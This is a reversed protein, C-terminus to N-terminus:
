SLEQLSSNPDLKKFANFWKNYENRGEEKYDHFRKLTATKFSEFHTEDDFLKKYELPFNGDIGSLGMEYVQRAIEMKTLCEVKKKNLEDKTHM